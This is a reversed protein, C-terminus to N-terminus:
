LHHLGQPDALAAIHRHDLRQTEPETRGPQQQHQVVALM